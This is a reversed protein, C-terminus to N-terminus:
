LEWEGGGVAPGCERLTELAEPRAAYGILLTGCEGAALSGFRCTTGFFRSRSGPTPTKILKIGIADFAADFSATFKSDRDRILFRFRLDADELDM